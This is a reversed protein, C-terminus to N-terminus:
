SNNAFNVINEVSNFQSIDLTKRDITRGKYSRCYSLSNLDTDYYISAIGGRISIWDLSILEEDAEFYGHTIHDSATKLDETLKDMM